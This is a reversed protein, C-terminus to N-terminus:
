FEVNILICLVVLQYYKRLHVKCQMIPLEGQRGLRLLVRQIGSATIVGRTALPTTASACGVTIESCLLFKLRETSSLVCWVGSFIRYM